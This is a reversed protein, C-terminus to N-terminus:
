CGLGEQGMWNHVVAVTLESSCLHCYSEISPLAKVSEKVRGAVNEM